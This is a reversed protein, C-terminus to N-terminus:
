QGQPDTPHVYFPNADRAGLVHRLNWRCAHGQHDTGPDPATGTFFLGTRERTVLPIWRNDAGDIPDESASPIYPPLLSPDETLRRPAGTIAEIPHAQGEEFYLSRRRAGLRTRTVVSHSSPISLTRLGVRDGFWPFRYTSVVRCRRLELTQAGGQSGRLLDESLRGALRRLRPDSGGTESDRALATILGPIGPSEHWPTTEQDEVVIEFGEDGAFRPYFARGADLNDRGLETDQWAFWRAAEVGQQKMLMLHGSYIVAIFLFLYIPLLVAFEVMAQADEELLKELPSTESEDRTM